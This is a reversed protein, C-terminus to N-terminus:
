STHGTLSQLAGTTGRCSYIEPAAVPYDVPSCPQLSYIKLENTVALTQCDTHSLQKHYQYRAPMPRSSAVLALCHLISLCNSITYLLTYPSPCNAWQRSPTCLNYNIHLFINCIVFSCFRKLIQTIQRQIIDHGQFRPKLDSLSDLDNFTAVNSLGYEVKQQDAM